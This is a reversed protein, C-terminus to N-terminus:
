ASCLPHSLPISLHAEPSPKILIYHLPDAEETGFSQVMPRRFRLPHLPMPSMQWTCAKPIDKYIVAHLCIGSLYLDHGFM